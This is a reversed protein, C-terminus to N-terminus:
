AALEPPQGPRGALRESLPAGARAAFARDFEQYSTRWLAGAVALATGGLSRHPGRGSRGGGGGLLTEGAPAVGLPAPPGAPAAPRPASWNTGPRRILVTAGGRRLLGFNGSLANPSFHSTTTSEVSEPDAGSVM